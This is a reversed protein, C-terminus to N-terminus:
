KNNQLKDLTYQYGDPNYTIHDEANENVFDRQFAAYNAAVKEDYLKKYIDYKVTGKVYTDIVEGTVTNKLEVYNDPDYDYLSNVYDLNMKQYVTGNVTEETIQGQANSMTAYADEMAYGTVVVFHIGYTSVCYGYSGVGGQASGIVIGEEALQAKEADSFYANGKAALADCVKEFSAVMGSEENEPTMLYGYKKDTINSFAGSDENAKYIWGNITDLLAKRYEYSNHDAYESNVTNLADKVDQIVTLVNITHDPNYKNSPCAVCTCGEHSYWDDIDDYYVAEGKYNACRPCTCEENECVADKDYDPNSLWVMIDDAVQIKFEELSSSNAGLAEFKDIEANTADTYKFLIQSVYYYGYGDDAPKPQLYAEALNSLESKSYTSNAYEDLKASIIRDYEAQIEETTIVQQSALTNETLKKLQSVCYGYLYDNYSRYNNELYKELRAMANRAIKYEQRAETLDDGTLMVGNDDKLYDDDKVEFSFYELKKSNDVAEESDAKAPQSRSPRAAFINVTFTATKELYTITITQGQVANESDFGEIVLEKTPIELTEGDPLNAVVVLGRTDLASDGVEYAKRYPDSTITIGEISEPAKFTSTELAAYEDRITEVYDDFLKQLDENASRVAANYYTYDVNGDDDRNCLLIAQIEKIRDAYYQQLQAMKSFDYTNNQTNVDAKGFEKVAEDNAGYKDTYYQEMYEICKLTYLASRALSENTTKFTEDLDGLYSQFQEQTIYGYSYYTYLYNYYTYFSNYLEGVSVISTRDAYNASATVQKGAREENVPFLSTNCAALLLISGVLVSVIAITLIIKKM